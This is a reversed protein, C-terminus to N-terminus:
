STNILLAGDINSKSKRANQGITRHKTQIQHKVKIIWRGQGMTGTRTVSKGTETLMTRYLTPKQCAPLTAAM